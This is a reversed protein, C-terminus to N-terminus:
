GEEMARKAQARKIMALRAPESLAAMREDRARQLEMFREATIFPALTAEIRAAYAYGADSIYISKSRLLEAKNVNGTGVRVVIPRDTTALVTPLHDLRVCEYTLRRFTNQLDLNKSHIKTWAELGIFGGEALTKIIADVTSSRCLVNDGADDRKTAFCFIITDILRALPIRKPEESM